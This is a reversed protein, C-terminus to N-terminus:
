PCGQQLLGHTRDSKSSIYPSIARQVERGGGLMVQGIRGPSYSERVDVRLPLVRGVHFSLGVHQQAALLAWAAPRMGCLQCLLIRLQVLTVCVCVCCSIPTKWQLRFAQKQSPNEMHHGRRATNEHAIYSYSLLLFVRMMAVHMSNMEDDLSVVQSLPVCAPM